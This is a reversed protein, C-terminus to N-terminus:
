VRKFVWFVVWSVVLLILFHFVLFEVVFKLSFGELFYRIQLLVAIVGSFILAKVFPKKKQFLLYTIFGIGTGFIIKNRFYYNPVAYDESLSHVLYDIFTFILIIGFVIALIILLKKFDLKEKVVKERKKKRPM